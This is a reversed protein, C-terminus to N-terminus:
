IHLRRELEDSTEVSSTKKGVVLIVGSEVDYGADVLVKAIDATVIQRLAIEIKGTIM